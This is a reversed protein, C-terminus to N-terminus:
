GDAFAWAAVREVVPLTERPWRDATAYPPNDHVDEAAGRLSAVRERIIKDLHLALQPVLGELVAPNRRATLYAVTAHGILDLMEDILADTWPHARGAGFVELVIEWERASLGLEDIPAGGSM